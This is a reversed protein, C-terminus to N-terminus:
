VQVNVPFITLLGHSTLWVSVTVPLTVSSSPTVVSPVEVGGSVPLAVTVTVTVLDGYNPRRSRAIQAAGEVSRPHLEPRRGRLGTRYAGYVEQDPSTDQVSVWRSTQPMELLRWPLPTSSPTSRKIVVLWSSVWYSQLIWSFASRPPEQETQRRELKDPTYGPSHRLGHGVRLGRWRSPRSGVTGRAGLPRM